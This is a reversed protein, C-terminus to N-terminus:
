GICYRGGFFFVGGFLCILGVTDAISSVGPYFIFLSKYLSPFLSLYRLLMDDPICESSMSLPVSFSDLIVSQYLGRVM